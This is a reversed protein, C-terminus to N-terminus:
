KSVSYSVLETTANSQSEVAKVMYMKTEKSEWQIAVPNNNTDYEVVKFCNFTGAPVTIQEINEVKFTFTNTETNSEGTEKSTATITEVAKCEKNIKLPYLTDGQFQYSYTITGDSTENKIPFLTTKDIWEKSNYNDMSLTAIYCDKGNVVEEGIIETTITYEDGDSVTKTVWKDKVTLVPLAGDKVTLTVKPTISPVATSISTPTSTEKEKSGGCATLLPLILISSLSLAIFTCWKSRKPSM